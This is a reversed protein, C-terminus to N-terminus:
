ADIIDKPNIITNMEKELESIEQESLEFTQEDVFMLQEDTLGENWIEYLREFRATLVAKVGEAWTVQPETTTVIGANQNCCPSPSFYRSNPWCKKCAICRRCGENWRLPPKKADIKLKQYSPFKDNSRPM